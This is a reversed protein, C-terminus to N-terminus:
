FCDLGNKKIEAILKRDISYDYTQELSVFDNCLTAKLLRINALQAETDQVSLENKKATMVSADGNITIIYKPRPILKCLFRTYFGLKKVPYNHYVLFDYFYRDFLIVENRFLWRIRVVYLILFDICYYSSILVYKWAKVKHQKNTPLKIEGPPIKKKFVEALRPLFNPRLHIIHTATYLRNSILFKSFSSVLTSKGAGDPALFVYMNDAYFAKRMYFFLYKYFSISVLGIICERCVRGLSVSSIERLKSQLKKQHHDSIVFFGRYLKRDNIVAEKDFYKHWRRNLEFFFDLQVIKDENVSVFLGVYNFGRNVKVIQFASANILDFVNQFEDKQILIDLDTQINNPLENFGRLCVYSQSSDRLVHSFYDLFKTMDHM